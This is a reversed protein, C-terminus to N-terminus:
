LSIIIIFSLPLSEITFYSSVEIGLKYPITDHKFYRGATINLDTANIGVYLNKVLIENASLSSIADTVVRVAESFNSSLQFVKLVKNELPLLSMKLRIHSCGIITSFM